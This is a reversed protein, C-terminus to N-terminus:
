SSRRAAWLRTTYPVSIESRGALAGAIAEIIAPFRDAAQRALTAHSRWAEVFDDLSLVHVTKEEIVEPEQFLGSERIVATQDERRTGYDYGPIRDRIIQECIQQVEDDLDRHNWMCAFWGRPRLIRAAEALARGRDTVNFSSGFTVLDYLATALGTEEGTGVRWAVRGRETNRM